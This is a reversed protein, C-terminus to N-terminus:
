RIKSMLTQIQAEEAPSPKKTMAAALETKAKSSNGKQYLATALHYHFAAVDPNQRVLKDLVQIASDNQNRKTYIWALTDLLNPNDPLKRLAAQSYSLADDLNGGDEAIFWAKNNLLAPDTPSLDVSKSAQEIAAKKNGTLDEAIALRGAVVADKPALKNAQQLAALENSYDGKQRFVDALKVLYDSNAPALQVLKQYQELAVDKKGALMATVALMERVPLSNPSKSIEGNLIQLARDFQQEAVLASVLAGLARTNSQGSRYLSTFVQEAASYQKRALNLLGLELQVEPSQPVQKILVALDRQAVDLNGLATSGSAHLLRGTFNNPDIALIEEALRVTEKFNKGERNLLALEVRPEIYNKQQAAAQGFAKAASPKDGSELYARGLLFKLRADGPQKAVLAQCESVAQALDQANGGTLLLQVRQARDGVANPQDKIIQNLVDLAERRKNQSIYVGAVHERYAISQKPDAKAGADFWHIAEPWNSVSAYFDGLLFYSGQFGAPNQSIKALAANMEAPKQARHYYSALQIIAPGNNPNNAVKSVLVAEAQAQRGSNIYAGYLWDYIPLYDKHPGQILESALKEAEEGQGNAQLADALPLIVVPEMPKVVNAQRFARIAEPVHGDTYSLSASFRLGDFSNPNKALLEKTLKEAKDYLSKPRSRDILYAALAADAFEARISDDGPKLQLAREFNTIAEMRQNQKLESLALRHFAEGFQPDKQIAKQFDLSAEAYNGGAFAKNGRQLYDRPGACGVAFIAAAAVGGLRLVTMNSKM